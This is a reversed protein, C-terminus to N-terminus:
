GVEANESPFEWDQLEDPRLGGVPRPGQGDWEVALGLGILWQGVDPIGDISVKAMHRGFKEKGKLELTVVQKSLRDSLTKKVMKGKETSRESAQIGDLRVTIPVLLHCVLSDGDIVREVIADYLGREPVLTLTRM